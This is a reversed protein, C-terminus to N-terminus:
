FFGHAFIRAVVAAAFVSWGGVMYMTNRTIATGSITAASLTLVEGCQCNVFEREQRACEKRVAECEPSTENVTVTPRVVVTSDTQTPTDDKSALIVFPDSKTKDPLIAGLRSLQVYYKAKPDGVPSTWRVTGVSADVEGMITNLLRDSAFIGNQVRYLELKIKSESRKTDTKDIYWSIVVESNPVWETDAKPQTITFGAAAALPLLLLFTTFFLATSRM